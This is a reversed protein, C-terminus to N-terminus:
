LLVRFWSAGVLIFVDSIRISSHEWETVWSKCIKWCIIFWQCIHWDYGVARSYGSHPYVFVSSLLSISNYICISLKVMSITSIPQWTFNTEAACSNREQLISIMCDSVFQSVQCMLGTRGQRIHVSSYYAFSVDGSQEWVCSQDVSSTDFWGHSICIYWFCWVDMVLRAKVKLSSLAFSQCAQGIPLRSRAWNWCNISEIERNGSM